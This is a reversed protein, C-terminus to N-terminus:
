LGDIEAKLRSGDALLDRLRVFDNADIANRYETLSKILFDIEKTLEVGNELFLEAWMDPNLRAVRTLDKYSGASLGKHATAEPSKVYANSVVHALQSTFAITADHKDATTVKLHGFGAPKLLKDIKDLLAIDDFVPPVLVMVEDTFLNARSHKFGSDAIGAMPHAGVFTFGYEKAIEFCSDCVTKKVGCCDFVVTGSSILHAANKLYNIAAKPNIAILICDCLKTTNEDLVGDIAGAIQAFELIADDTDFGYVTIGDHMKYAKALSGGILGLGVIGVVM